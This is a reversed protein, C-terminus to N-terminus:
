ANIFFVRKEVNKNIEKIIKNMQPTLSEFIMWDGKQLVLNDLHKWKSETFEHYFELPIVISVWRINVGAKVIITHESFSNYLAAGKETGEGVNTKHNEYEIASDAIFRM